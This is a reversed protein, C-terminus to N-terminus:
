LNQMINSISGDVLDKGKKKVVELKPHSIITAASPGSIETRKCCGVDVCWKDCFIKCFGPCMLSPTMDVHHKSISKSGKIPQKRAKSKSGKISPKLSALAVKKKKQSETPKIKLRIQIAKLVENKVAPRVHMANSKVFNDVEPGIFKKPADTYVQNEVPHANELRKLIEATPVLQKPADEKQTPKAKVQEATELPPKKDDPKPEDVPRGKMFAAAVLHTQYRDDHRSDPPAKNKRKTKDDKGPKPKNKSEKMPDGTHIVLSPSQEITLHQGHDDHYNEVVEHVHHGAVHGIIHNEDQITTADIRTEPMAHEQLPGDSLSNLEELLFPAQNNPAPIAQPPVPKM